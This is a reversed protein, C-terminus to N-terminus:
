DFHGDRLQRLWENQQEVDQTQFFDKAGSFPAALFVPESWFPRSILCYTDRKLEVRFIYTAREPNHDGVRPIVVICDTLTVVGDMGRAELWNTMAALRHEAEIQRAM